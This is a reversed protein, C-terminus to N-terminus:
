PAAAAAGGGGAPLLAAAIRRGEALLVNYTRAAPPTAMAEVGIGAAALAAALGEPLRGPLPGLGVLIVDVAGALAVLAAVDGPGGWARAGTRTVLVPGRTLRGGIRFFDPGYGEIPSGDRFSTETLRVAAEGPAV